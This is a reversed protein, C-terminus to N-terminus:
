THKFKRIARVLSNVFIPVELIINLKKRIIISSVIKIVFYYLLVYQTALSIQMRKEELFLLNEVEGFASAITYMTHKSVVMKLYM